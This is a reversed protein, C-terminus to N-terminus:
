KDVRNEYFRGGKIYDALFERVITAFKEPEEVHIAHGCREFIVHHGHQLCLKMEKAIKCFKIDLAGTMLLVPIDLQMLSEWWSPQVGTGMGLLSNALGLPSNNLRQRRITRQVELALTKQTSFLPINEWFSVFSEVGEAVIRAALKRDQERREEREMTTNLGPSASELILTQIMEPYLIAFTLALRGGMSYGLLHVKEIEFEKLIFAIDRAAKRIEYREISTPINTLGHGLLDISFVQYKEEFFTKVTTWNTHDGTFGHLLLLPEGNGSVDVNYKIDYVNVKMKKM